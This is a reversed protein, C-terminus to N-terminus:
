VWEHIHQRNYFREELPMDTYSAALINLTAVCSIENIDRSSSWFSVQETTNTVIRFLEYLDDLHGLKKTTVKLAVAEIMVVTLTGLALQVRLEEIDDHFKM